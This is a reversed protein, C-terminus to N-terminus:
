AADRYYYNLMGGLRQRWCLKGRRGVSRAEPEILRGALGQHNQERHYYILYEAVEVLNKDLKRGSGLTEQQTAEAIRFLLASGPPPSSLRPSRNSMM